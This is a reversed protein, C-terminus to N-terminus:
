DAGMIDLARTLTHHAPTDSTGFEIWLAAPDDNVLSARARDEKPHDEVRFLEKYHPGDTSTPDIPATAEAFEKGRDAHRHMEAQMEASRLMEGIGVPDMKFTGSM